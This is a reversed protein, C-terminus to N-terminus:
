DKNEAIKEDFVVELFYGSNMVSDKIIITLTNTLDRAKM